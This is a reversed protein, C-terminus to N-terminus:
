WTNIKQVFRHLYDRILQHIGQDIESVQREGKHNTLISKAISQLNQDFSAVYKKKLKQFDFEHTHRNIGAAETEFANFFSFFIETAKNHFEVQMHDRGNSM